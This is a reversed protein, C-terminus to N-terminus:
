KILLKAKYSKSETNIVVYYIGSSLFSCDFSPHNNYDFQTSILNGSLSYIKIELFKNGELNVKFYGNAPNPYIIIESDTMEENVTVYLKDPEGCSIENKKYYFLKNDFESYDPINWYYDRVLGLGKGFLRKITIPEFYNGACNFGNILTNCYQISIENITDYMFMSTDYSIWRDYYTISSDLNTYLVTDTRTWFHYELNYMNDLQTSYSNHNQVYFISDSEMSYYKDIITIRDANPTQGPGNGSTQFEDGIEFDFVEGITMLEQAAITASLSVILLIVLFRKM